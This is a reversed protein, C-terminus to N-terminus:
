QDGDLTLTHGNQRLWNLRPQYDPLMRAVEAWFKQSHNPVRLHALEHIIVYDIIEIPAMILRWTFSLVGRTSCSGWRTRASSIRIKQYQLGFKQAYHTVREQFLQRARTKYWTEFAQRARPQAKQPLLFEDQFTLATKPSQIIRLPYNQGLLPFKEGGQYSKAPTVPKQAARAKQRAIWAAKTQVFQRILHEPTKHPARVIVKGDPHIYIAITRRRTRIIKDITPPTM